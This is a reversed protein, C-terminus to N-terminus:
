DFQIFSFHKDKQDDVPCTHTTLPAFQLLELSGPKSHCIQLEHFETFFDDYAMWFEGDHSQRFKFRRKEEDSVDDWLPSSNLISYVSFSFALNKEQDTKRTCFFRSIVGIAM